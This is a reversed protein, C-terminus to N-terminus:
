DLGLRRRLRPYDIKANHRSDVPIAHVVQVEDINAWALRERLRRADIRAGARPQAAVVRRKRVSVLASRAIASDYSLSCEVAFPNLSGREDCVAASARGMLWLRGARDFYGLDGTRHWVADDVRIKTEADGIGDLYGPVVHPGAVLIEGTVGPALPVAVDLPTGWRNEIVRVSAMAAPHGALLGMGSRMARVDDPGIGARSLDAIPEAETSGYLAVIDAGPVTAHLADLLWPMVPAGGTVITRLRQLRSSDCVGALRELMAPSAVISTARSREIDRALHEPDAAGPRRLDVGPIVSTIGSALNALLVIPMTAVDVGDRPITARIAELQARLLAHSRVVVKPVGTSGSTFTILAADEAAREAVPAGGGRAALSITGPFARTTFRLRVHALSPFTACYAFAGLTGFLAVPRVRACCSEVYGRGAAPDCVTPVLGARLLGALAVYLDANMPHLVLVRAGPQLGAERFARAAASAATELEAFTLSRTTRQTLDLIAIRKPTQRAHESLLEAVNM